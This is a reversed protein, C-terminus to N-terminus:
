RSPGQALVDEYVERVLRAMEQYRFTETWRRCGEDGLRERLGQDGVLRTVSEVLGDVSEAEVLLGTEEPIVV